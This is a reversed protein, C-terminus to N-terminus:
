CLDPFSGRDAKVTRNEGMPRQTAEDTEGRLKMASGGPIKMQESLGLDIPAGIDAQYMGQGPGDNKKSSSTIDSPSREKASKQKAMHETPNRM